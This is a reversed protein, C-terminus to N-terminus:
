ARATFRAVWPGKEIMMGQSYLDGASSQAGQSVIDSNVRSQTGLPYIM